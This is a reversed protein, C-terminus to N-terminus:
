DRDDRAKVNLYDLAKYAEAEDVFRGHVRGARNRIIWECTEADWNCSYAGSNSSRAALAIQATKSPNKLM